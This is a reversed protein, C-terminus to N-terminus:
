RGWGGGATLGSGPLTQFRCPNIYEILRSGLWRCSILLCPSVEQDKARQLRGGVPFTPCCQCKRWWRARLALPLVDQWSCCWTASGEVNCVLWAGAVALNRSFQGMQRTAIGQEWGVACGTTAIWGAQQRVAEWHWRHAELPVGVLGQILVNSPTCLLSPKALHLHWGCITLCPACIEVALDTRPMANEGGNKIGECSWAHTYYVRTMKVVGGDEEREQSIRRGWFTWGGAKTDEPHPWGLKVLITQKCSCPHSVTYQLM